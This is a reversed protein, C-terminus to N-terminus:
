WLGPLLRFQVKHTYEVYGPLEAQLTRDELATRLVILGVTLVSLLLVWWSALVFSAAIEFLIAGSYAPHRIFHYPGTTIITQGRDPQLRVILSFYANSQTAWVVLAYGLCCIVLAALQIYIPFGGSWGFRQDLGALIYRSLQALGLCSMIVTDWTKAGPKPGLREALLAPNFRLIVVAMGIDWGAMVGLIAWGPWWSLKGASWFLATGMFALGLTERLIYRFIIKTNM